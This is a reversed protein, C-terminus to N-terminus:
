RLPFSVAHRRRNMRNIQDCREALSIESRRNDKECRSPGAVFRHLRELAALDDQGLRLLFLDGADQGLDGFLIGADRFVRQDFRNLADTYGRMVRAM